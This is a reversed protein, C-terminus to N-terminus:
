PNIGTQFLSFASARAHVSIKCHCHGVSFEVFLHINNFSAYLRELNEIAGNPESGRDFVKKIGCPFNTQQLLEPWLYFLFIILSLAIPLFLLWSFNYLQLTISFLISFETSHPSNKRKKKHPPPWIVWRHCEHAALYPHNYFLASIPRLLCCESMALFHSALFCICQEHDLPSPKM